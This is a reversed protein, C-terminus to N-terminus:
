GTTTSTTSFNRWTSIWWGGCGRRSTGSRGPWPRSRRAMPAFGYSHESCSADWRQQLVQLVMQQVLRDVVTPIGLKRMGGGPKPIEVRQVPQPRYTGSLVQACLQAGHAEVYPPLQEVSMGDVGADGHNAVVRAVAKYLNASECVEEMLHETAAAPSETGHEAASAETGGEGGSSAEGRRHAPFALELQNNQRRADM